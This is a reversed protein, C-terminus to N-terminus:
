SRQPVAANDDNPVPAKYKEKPYGICVPCNPCDTNKYDYKEECQDCIAHMTFQCQYSFCHDAEELDKKCIGCFEM